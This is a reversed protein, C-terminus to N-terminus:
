LDVRVLLHPMISDAQEIRVPKAKCGGSRSQYCMLYTYGKPPKGKNVVQMSSGCEYCKAIGHWLNFKETKKSPRSTSRIALQGQVQYFLSEDIIPPYYDKIPEGRPEVKGDRRDLPQYEGLVARFTLVRRVTAQSWVKSKGFTPIAESNLITCIAGAGAGGAAMQYIRNVIKVRDTIKEYKKGDASLKLWGPGLNGLAKKGERANKQKNAWSASVRDGKTASEEHARMMMVLSILIDTPDVDDGGKYLKGDSLTVVHIGKNLLDIFRPLAKQVKERSLRDLSEVLLYSGAEIEGADVLDLFRKLQGEDDLNKGAYGSKGKDFFTYEKATALELGNTKAYATALELQRRYSDGKAQQPSSFRIYSYAKPM